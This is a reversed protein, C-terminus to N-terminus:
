GGRHEVFRQYCDGGGAGDDHWQPILWRLWGLLEFPRPGSHRTAASVGFGNFFRLIQAALRPASVQPKARKRLHVAPQCRPDPRGLNLPGGCSVAASLGGGRCWGAAEPWPRRLACTGDPHWTRRGGDSQGFLCHPSPTSGPHSVPLAGGGLLCRCPSGAAPRVWGTRLATRARKRVRVGFPDAARRSSWMRQVTATSMPSRGPPSSLPSCQRVLCARASSSGVGVQQGPM